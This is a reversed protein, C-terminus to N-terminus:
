ANGIDVAAIQRRAVGADVDLIAAILEGVADILDALDAVAPQDVRRTMQRPQLARQTFQADGLRHREGRELEHM